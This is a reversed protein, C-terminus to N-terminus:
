GGSRLVGLAEDAQAKIESRQQDDAYPKRQWLYWFAIRCTLDSLYAKSEGTLDDLDDVTYRAARLTAAKIRGTATNLATTLKTNTILKATTVPIGDDSCIDGLTNVDYRAIMDAPTAFATM